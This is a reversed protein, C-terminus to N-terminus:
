WLDINMTYIRGADFLPPTERQAFLANFPYICKKFYKFNKSSEFCFCKLYLCLIISLIEKM